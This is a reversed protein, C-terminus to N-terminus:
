ETLKLAYSEKESNFISGGAVVMLGMDAGGWFFSVPFFSPFACIKERITM